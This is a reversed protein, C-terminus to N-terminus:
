RASRRRRAAALGALALLAAAGPAPVLNANVWDIALDHEEEDLGYNFVLWTPLSDALQGGPNTFYGEVLYIGEGTTATAGDLTWFYHIDDPFSPIPTLPTLADALPTTVSALGLDVRGASMTRSTSEFTGLTVNWQRLAKTLTFGITQGLVGPDQTAFGPEDVGVVNEIADFALDVPFVRLADGFTQTPPEGVAEVTVLRGGQVILGIDSGDALAASAALGVGGAMALVRAVGSSRILRQM